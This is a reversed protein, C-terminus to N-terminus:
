ENDIFVENMENGNTDKVELYFHPAIYRVIDNSLNGSDIYKKIKHIIIFTEQIRVLTPTDMSKLNDINNMWYENICKKIYKLLPNIIYNKTKIGKCDRSWISSNNNLLEKVIYTLRSVDSNWLSQESPNDKKYYSILFNGLYTHLCDSNFKSVLTEIFENDEFTLKAYDNVSELAPADAYHQQVYKKISINYTTNGCKGSNIFSKLENLQKKLLKNEVEIEKQKLKNEFEQEQLKMRQQYEQLQQRLEANEKDRISEIKKEEKINPCRHNRHRYLASLKTFTRNCKECSIKDSQNEHKTTPQIVPEKIVPCSIRLHSSSNIHRNYNSKDNTEYNCLKCQFKM